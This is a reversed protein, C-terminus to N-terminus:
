NFQSTYSLIVKDLYTDFESMQDFVGEFRNGMIKLSENLLDMVDSHLEFDYNCDDQFREIMKYCALRGRQNMVFLIENALVVRHQRVSVDGDLLKGGFFEYHDHALTYAFAVSMALDPKIIDGLRRQIVAECLMVDFSLPYVIKENM